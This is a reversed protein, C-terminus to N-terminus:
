RPSGSKVGWTRVCFEDQDDDFALGSFGMEGPSFVFTKVEDFKLEDGDEIEFEHIRSANKELVYGEHDEKFYIGGIEFPFEVRRRVSGNSDTEQLIRRTSDILWFREKDEPVSIGQAAQVNLEFLNGLSQESEFYLQLSSSPSSQNSLLTVDPNQPDSLDGENAVNLDVDFGDGDFDGNSEIRRPAKGTPLSEVPGASPFLTSAQSRYTRCVAIDPVTDNDWFIATIDSCGSLSPDSETVVSIASGTIDIGFLIHIRDDNDSLAADMEGNTSIM